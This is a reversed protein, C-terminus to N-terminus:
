GHLRTADVRVNTIRFVRGSSSHGSPPLWITGGMWQGKGGGLGSSFKWSSRDPTAVVCGVYERLYWNIEDPDHTHFNFHILDWVGVRATRAVSSWDDGNRVRYRRGGPPPEYDRVPNVPRKETDLPDSM